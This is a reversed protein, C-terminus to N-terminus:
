DVEGTSPLQDDQLSGVPTDGAFQTRDFAGSQAHTVDNSRSVLYVFLGLALLLSFLQLPIRKSM